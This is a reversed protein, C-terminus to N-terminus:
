AQAMTGTTQHFGQDKHYQAHSHGGHSHNENFHGEKQQCSPDQDGSTCFWALYAALSIVACLIGCVMCAIGWSASPRINSGISKNFDSCQGALVSPSIIWAIVAFILSGIALM